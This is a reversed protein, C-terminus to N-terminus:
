ITNQGHTWCFGHYPQYTHHRGPLRPWHHAQHHVSSGKGSSVRPIWGDGDWYLATCIRCLSRCGVGNVVRLPESSPYIRVFLRVSPVLISSVYVTAMTATTQTLVEASTRPSVNVVKAQGDVRYRTVEVLFSSEQRGRVNVM